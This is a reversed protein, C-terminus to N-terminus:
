LMLMYALFSHSYSHSTQFARLFVLICYKSTDSQTLPIPDPLDAGFDQTGIPNFNPASQADPVSAAVQADMDPGRIPLDFHAEPIVRRVVVDLCQLQSKLASKM